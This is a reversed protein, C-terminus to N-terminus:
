YRRDGPAPYGGAYGPRGQDARSAGSGPYSDASSPRYYPDDAGGPAPGSAAPPAPYTQSAYPYSGTIASDYPNQGGSGSSAARGSGTANPDTAPRAAPSGSPGAAPLGAAPLQPRAPRQQQQAPRPQQTEYQGTALGSGPTAGGGPLGPRGSTSQTSPTFGPQSPRGPVPGPGAQGRPATGPSAQGRGPQSPHGGPGSPAPYRGAPPQPAPAPSDDRYQWYEGGRGPQDPAPQQHRGSLFTEVQDTLQTQAQSRRAAARYSRGDADTMAARSYAKSTLPDDDSSGAPAGGRSPAAPWAGSSERGADRGPARRDPQQRDPARWAANDGRGREPAGPAGSAGASLGLPGSPRRGSAPGPGQGRSAPRPEPYGSASVREIRETRDGWDQQRGGGAAGGPGASPLGGSRSTNPQFSPRASAQPFSGSGAAPLGPRPGTTGSPPRSSTVGVTPTPGTGPRVPHPGTGPRAPMPGSATQRGAGSQAPMPGSAPRRGASSQAPGGFGGTGSVAGPAGTPQYDSTLGPPPGLRGAVGREGGRQDGFRPDAGPRGDLGPRAGTASRADGPRAGTEPRPGTGPRASPAPAPGPGDGLPADGHFPRDAAVSAWYDEDSVGDDPWIDEGRDRRLRLIGTREGRDERDRSRRSGRRREGRDDDAGDPLDYAGTAFEDGGYGPAAAGAPGGYEHGDFEDRYSEQGPDPRGRGGSRGSPNEGAWKGKIGEPSFYQNPSWGDDDSQAYGDDAYDDFDDYEAGRVRGDPRAPKRSLFSM